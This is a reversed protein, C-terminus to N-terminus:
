PLNLYFCKGEILCPSNSDQIKSNKCYNTNTIQSIKHKSIQCYEETNRLRHLQCLSASRVAPRGLSIFVDGRLSDSLWSLKFTILVTILQSLPRYYDKLDINFTQVVVTGYHQSTNDNATNTKAQKVQIHAKYNYNPSTFQTKKGVTEAFLM